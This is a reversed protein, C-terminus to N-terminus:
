RDWPFYRPQILNGFSQLSGSWMRTSEMITDFTNVLPVDQPKSVLGTLLPYLETATPTAFRLARLGARGRTTDVPIFYGSASWKRVMIDFVSQWAEKETRHPRYFVQKRKFSYTVTITDDAEIIVEFYHDGDSIALLVEQEGPYPELDVFGLLRLSVAWSRATQLTKEPIPGGRGYDWGKPLIGFSDITRHVDDDAPIGVGSVTFTLNAAVTSSLIFSDRNM